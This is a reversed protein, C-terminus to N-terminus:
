SIIPEMGLSKWMKEVSNTSFKRDSKEVTSKIKKEWLM